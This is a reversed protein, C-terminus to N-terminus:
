EIVWGGRRGPPAKKETRELEKISEKYNNIHAKDTAKYTDKGTANDTAEDTDSLDDDQLKLGQYKNYNLVTILTGNHTACVRTMGLKETDQLYRSVTDRGWHFIAAMKRVSTFMQGREIEFVDNHNNITQRKYAAHSIIYMWASYHNFRDETFFTDDWISRWAKIYGKRKDAMKMVPMNKMFAKM